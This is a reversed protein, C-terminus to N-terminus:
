DESYLMLAFLNYGKGEQFFNFILTLIMRRYWYFLSGTVERNREKEHILFFFFTNMQLYLIWLVLGTFVTERENKVRDLLWRWNGIHKETATKTYIFIQIHIRTFGLNSLQTQSKAVRRFITRGRRQEQSEGSLFVSTPQWARRWPIRRVWPNLGGRKYRRCQCAPEKRSLTMQYMYACINGRAEQM